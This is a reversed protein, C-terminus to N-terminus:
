KILHLRKKLYMKVSATHRESFSIYAMVVFLYWFLFHNSNLKNNM